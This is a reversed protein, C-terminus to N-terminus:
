SFQSLVIELLKASGDMWCSLSMHFVIYYFCVFMEQWLRCVDAM